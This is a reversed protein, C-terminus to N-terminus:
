SNKIFKCGGNAEETYNNFYEDTKIAGNGDISAPVYQIKVEPTNELSERTIKATIPM